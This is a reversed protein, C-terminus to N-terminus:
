TRQGRGESNAKFRALETACRIACPNQSPVARAVRPFNLTFPIGLILMESVDGGDGKLIKWLVWVLQENLSAGGHAVVKTALDKEKTFTLSLASQFPNM